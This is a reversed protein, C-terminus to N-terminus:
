DSTRIRPDPNVTKLVPIIVHKEKIVLQPASGPHKDRNGSRPDRIGCRPDRIECGPKPDRIESGFVAVFSLPSFFFQQWVKKQLWLNWLISFQIESISFFFIQALKWLNIFSKGLLNDSLEWFYPDPIRSGLDPFFRNRIGSGPTLFAGSGPDAVSIVLREQQGPYVGVSYHCIVLQIVALPDPLWWSKAAHLLPPSWWVEWFILARAGIIKPARLIPARAGM